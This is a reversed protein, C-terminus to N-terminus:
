SGHFTGLLMGITGSDIDIIKLKSHLSLSSLCSEFFIPPKVAYVLEFSRDSQRNKASNKPKM